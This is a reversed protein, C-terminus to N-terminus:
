LQAKRKHRMGGIAINSLAGKPAPGIAAIERTIISVSIVMNALAQTGISANKSPPRSHNAVARVKEKTKATVNFTPVEALTAVLQEKAVERAATAKERAKRAEASLLAKAVDKTNPPIPINAM